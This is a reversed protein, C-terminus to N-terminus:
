SLYYHVRTKANWIVNLACREASIGQDFDASLIDWMVVTYHLPDSVLQSLQFKSIRGYPPRFLRSDIYKAAESINSFYEKDNSKWGNVHNQTHNGVRHGEDLIRRYLGPEAQVNKGICFFTGKANFKELQDLIFPTAVPHPGDDFRSISNKKIGQIIGFVNPIINGSSGPHKSLISCPTFISSTSLFANISSRHDITSKM